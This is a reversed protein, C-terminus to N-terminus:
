KYKNFGSNSTVRYSKAIYFKIKVYEIEEVFLYFLPKNNTQLMINKNIDKNEQDLQFCSVNM